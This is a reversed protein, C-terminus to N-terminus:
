AKPVLLALQGTHYAMHITRSLVISLKNRHPEKAFDEESVNTHRSLWEAVEMAQFKEILTTNAEQLATKLFEIDYQEQGNKDAKLVFPKMLEPHKVEGLDMLKFINEHVAALHGVLYFGSNRGPAVDQQLQENSLKEIIGQTQAVQRQWGAIIQNIIIKSEM